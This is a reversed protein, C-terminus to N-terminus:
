SGALTVDGSTVLFDNEDFTAIGKNTDSADEGAVTVTTGSASTDIGEGGVISLANATAVATGSDTPVSQVVDVALTVDGSTVTFDGADFSAIGKNTDSADEGAITVTSGSGSTDIGEGGSITLVNSAPVASGSDTSYSNAVSGAGGPIDIHFQSM